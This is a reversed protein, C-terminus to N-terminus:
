IIKAMEITYYYYALGYVIIVFVVYSMLYGNIENQIVRISGLSLFIFLGITIVKFVLILKRTNSFVIRSNEPTVQLDYQFRNTILSLITLLVFFFTGLTPIALLIIKDSTVTQEGLANYFVPIVLDLQNYLQIFFVWMLILEILALVELIMDFADYPPIPQQDTYYGQQGGFFFPVYKKGQYLITEVPLHSDEKLFNSQSRDQNIM